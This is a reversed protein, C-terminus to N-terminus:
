RDGASKIIGFLFELKIRVEFNWGKICRFSQRKKESFVIWQWSEPTWQKKKQKKKTKNQKNTQKTLINMM